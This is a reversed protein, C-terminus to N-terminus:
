KGDKLARELETLAESISPSAKLNATFIAADVLKRLAKHIPALRANEHLAGQHFARRTVSKEFAVPKDSDAQKWNHPVLEKFTVVSDQAVQETHFGTKEDLLELLTM